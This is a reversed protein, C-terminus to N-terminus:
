SSIGGLENADSFVVKTRGRKLMQGDERDARKDTREWKEANKLVIFFPCKVGMNANNKSRKLAM